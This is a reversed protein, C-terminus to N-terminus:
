VGANGLVQSTQQDTETLKGIAALYTDRMLEAIAILDNLRDVAEVAAVTEFKKKMDLASPLGGYGSLFGLSEAQRLRRHLNDLLTQCESALAEGVGEEMTMEGHIAQQKMGQWHKLQDQEAM